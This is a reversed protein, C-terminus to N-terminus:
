LFLELPPPSKIIQLNFKLNYGGQENEELVVCVIRGGWFFFDGSVIISNRGSTSLDEEQICTSNTGIVM